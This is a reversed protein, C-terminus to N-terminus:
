TRPLTTPPPLNRLHYNREAAMFGPLISTALIAFILLLTVILLTVRYTLSRKGTIEIEEDELAVYRRVYRPNIVAADEAPYDPTPNIEDHEQM